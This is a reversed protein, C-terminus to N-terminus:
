NRFSHSAASAYLEMGVKYTEVGDGIETVLARAQEATEVDLAVIVPNHKM